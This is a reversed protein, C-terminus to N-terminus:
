NTLLQWVNHQQPGSKGQRPKEGGRTPWPVHAFMLLMHSSPWHPKAISIWLTPTFAEEWQEWFSITHAWLGLIIRLRRKQLWTCPIEPNTNQKIQVARYLFAGLPCPRWSSFPMPAFAGERSNSFPSTMRPEVKFYILIKSRVKPACM